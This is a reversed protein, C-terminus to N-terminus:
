VLPSIFSSLMFLSLSRFWQLKLSNSFFLLGFCKGVASTSPPFSFFFLEIYFCWIYFQIVFIESVLAQVELGVLRSRSPPELLLGSNALIALLSLVSRWYIEDKWFFLTFLFPIVIETGTELNKVNCRPFRSTCFFSGFCHEFCQLCCSLDWCGQLRESPHDAQVCCGISPITTLVWASSVSM